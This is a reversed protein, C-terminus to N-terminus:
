LKSRTHKEDFVIMVKGIVKRDKMASFAFNAESPPYSHSIHISILGRALWSLLEKVSDELVGPRHIKYSGWYLGHVTWNKVLAVNVPIVPVEGSAFGIILINAGWKLLRLSEKTLKGGVPDYLVDVGKLRRTQLFKKVSETVNESGLDVVHDVGLSKLLQVKEAGRHLPNHGKDARTAVVSKAAAGDVQLSEHFIEVSGMQTVAAWSECLISRKNGEVIKLLITALNKWSLNKSKKHWTKCGQVVNEKNNPHAKTAGKTNQVASANAAGTTQDKTDIGEYTTLDQRKVWSFVPTEEGKRAGNNDIADEGKQEWNSSNEGKREQYRAAPGRKGVRDGSGVVVKAVKSPSVLTVVKGDHDEGSTNERGVKTVRDVRAASVEAVKEAAAETVGRDEELEEESGEKQGKMVFKESKELGKIHIKIEQLMERMEQMNRRWEAMSMKSESTRRELTNDRGEMM